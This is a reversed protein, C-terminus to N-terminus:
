ANMRRKLIERRVKRSSAECPSMGPTVLDLQYTQLQPPLRTPQAQVVRAVREGSCEHHRDKKKGCCWQGVGDSFVPIRWTNQYALQKHDSRQDPEVTKENAALKRDDFHATALEVRQHFLAACLCFRYFMHTTM